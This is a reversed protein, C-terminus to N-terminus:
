EGEEDAAEFLEALAKKMRPLSWRRDLDVGFQQRAMDEIQIKNMSDIDIIEGEQRYPDESREKAAAKPDEKYGKKMFHDYAPSGKDVVVFEKNKWLKM